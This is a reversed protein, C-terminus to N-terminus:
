SFRYCSCASAEAAESRTRVIPDVETLEVSPTPRFTEPRSAVHLDQVEGGLAALAAVDAVDAQRIMVNM